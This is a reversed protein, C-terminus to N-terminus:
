ALVCVCVCVRCCLMLVVYSPSDLECVRGCPMDAHLCVCAHKFHGVCVWILATWCWVYVCVRTFLRGGVEAEEEM